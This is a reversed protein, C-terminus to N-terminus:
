FAIILMKDDIENLFLVQVLYLIPLIGKEFCLINIIDYKKYSCEEWHEYCFQLNLGRCVM